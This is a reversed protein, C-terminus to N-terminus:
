AKAQAKAAKFVRCMREVGEAIAETSEKSFALRLTNAGSGDVFFPQGPVYAIGSEIADPLM